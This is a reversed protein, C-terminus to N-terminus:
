LGLSSMKLSEQNFDKKLRRQTRKISGPELSEKLRDWILYNVTARTYWLSGFPMNGRAFNVYDEALGDYNPKEGHRSRVGKGAERATKGLISAISFATSATPGLLTAGFDNGSRTSVANQTFDGMIGLGGSQAAAQLWTAVLSPDKPELGKSIDKAAGSIYALGLTAVVHQIAGSPDGKLSEGWKSSEVNSFRKGGLVRDTYAVSFSKFQMMFRAAEGAVTGSKTGFTSLRRVRADPELVGNRGEEIFFTQLDTELRYKERKLHQAREKDWSAIKDADEPRNGLRFEEPILDDFNKPDIESILGPHYYKVGDVEVAKALKLMNWKKENFSGYQSLMSKLNPALQDWNKDMNKGLEKTLVLAVASKAKNTHWNQGSWKFMKDSMRGVWNNVNDQDFRNFNAFNMGDGLTAIQDLIARKEPTMKEFYNKMTDIWAAGYNNGTVLRVENAIQAFDTFQSLTAAGLKSVSNFLRIMASYYKLRPNAFSNGEGMALMFAHGIAGDRGKLGGIGGIDKVMQDRVTIPDGMIGTTTMQGDLDPRNFRLDQEINKILQAMNTEPQTGLTEMIGIKRSGSQIHRVLMGLANQGQGFEKMYELESAADKFHLVRSENIKSAINRPGKRIGQTPEFEGHEKRIGSTINEYTNDIADQLEKGELGKFSRETDINKEIFAKWEDRKIIMKTYDHQRPVYGDLKGINAGALNERGRIEEMADYFVKATKQALEDGSAGPKFREGEGINLLEMLVNKNFQEDDNLLKEIRPDLKKLEAFTKVSLGETIATIRGDLSNGAGEVGRLKSSGELIALMAQKPTAGGKIMTNVSASMRERASLNLYTQRKIEKAEAALKMKEDNILKEIALRQDDEGMLKANFDDILDQASKRSMGTKEAIVKVAGEMKGSQFLTTLEDYAKLEADIAEIDEKFAAKEEVSALPHSEIVSPDLLEIDADLIEPSVHVSEPIIAARPPAMDPRPELALLRDYVGIADPSLEAKLQKSSKYISTLWERFRDFVGQLEPRPARGNRSYQELGRAFKEHHVREIKGGDPVGMWKKIIDFDAKISPPADPLASIREMNNLFHHGSEHLITSQDADKFLSIISRNGEKFEVAGRTVGQDRKFVPEQYHVDSRASNINERFESLNMVLPNKATSRSMKPNTSSPSNFSETTVAGRAKKIEGSVKVNYLEGTVQNVQLQVMHMKGNMETPSEYIDFLRGGDDAEITKESLVANDIISKINEMARNINQAAGTAKAKLQDKVFSDIKGISNKNVTITKGSHPNAYEAIPKNKDIGKTLDVQQSSIKLVNVNEPMDIGADVQIGQQRRLDPTSRKGKYTAQFLPLGDPGNPIDPADSFEGSIKGNVLEGRQFDAGYKSLFDDVSMGMQSAYVQANAVMPILSDMADQRTMVKGNGDMDIIKQGELQSINEEILQSRQVEPYEYISKVTEPFGKVINPDFGDGRLVSDAAKDAADSLVKKSKLDVNMRREKAVSLGHGLSGFGLGLGGGIFTDLAYDAFIADPDGRDVYYNRSIASSALNGVAGEVAAGALKTAVKGGLRVGQALPVFNIPDPISGIMQGAFGVIKGSLTKGGAEIISETERREDFSEALYKYRGEGFGPNFKIGERFLDPRQRWEEETLPATIQPSEPDVINPKRKEYYANVNEREQIESAREEPGGAMSEQINDLAMGPAVGSFAQKINAGINELMTPDGSNLFEEKDKDTMRRTIEFM